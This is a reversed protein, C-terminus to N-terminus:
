AIYFQVKVPVCPDPFVVNAFISALSNLASTNNIGHAVLPVNSTSLVSIVSKQLANDRSPFSFITISSSTSEADEDPQFLKQSASLVSISAAYFSVLYMKVHLQEPLTSGAINLLHGIIGNFNSFFSKNSQVLSMRSLSCMFYSLFESFCNM